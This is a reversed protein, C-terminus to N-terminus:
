SIVKAGKQKAQGVLERLDIGTFDEIFKNLAKCSVRKQNGFILAPLLKAAVLEGIFNRNCGLRKAVEDTGMLYDGTKDLFILTPKTNPINERSKM